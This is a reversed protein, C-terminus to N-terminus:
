LVMLQRDPIGITVVRDRWFDLGVIRDYVIDSFSVRPKSLAIRPASVLAVQPV